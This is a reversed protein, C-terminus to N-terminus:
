VLEVKGNELHYIAGVLKLQGNNVAQRISQSREM